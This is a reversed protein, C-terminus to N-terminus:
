QSFLGHQPSPPKRFASGGGSHGLYPPTHSSPTQMGPIGQPTGVPSFAQQAPLKPLHSSFGGQSKSSNQKMALCIILTGIIVALVTLLLVFSYTLYDELDAVDPAVPSPPPRPPLTQKPPLEESPSGEPEVCVVPPESTDVIYSIHVTAEQHAINNTFIVKHDTYSEQPPSHYDTLSIRYVALSRVSSVKVASFPYATIVQPPFLFLLSWHICNVRSHLCMPIVSVLGDPCPKIGERFTSSCGENVQLAQLQSPLGSVTIETATDLPTLAFSKRSLSFAPVFPIGLKGSFIEYTQTFDFARVRLSLSLEEMPSLTEIAHPDDVPYFSCYSSGTKRDFTAETRIFKQAGLLSHSDALEAFCEFPVQQIFEENKTGGTEESCAPNPSVQVLSFRGDGNGHLFTVPIRYMGLELKRPANTFTSLKETANFRAEQVKAVTIETHTDIVDYIKHYIVARGTTLATAVGTEPQVQIIGQDGTTWWGPKDETLHTTFCVKSGLHVTALSPLIAYGVRIRVYDSIHPLATIWVKLIVNGQKAAKVIYTGNGSGPSVTVIDFRNLRHGLSIQAFDFLRGISDHLQAVFHASYGLPYAHQKSTPSAQATSVPSISLSAVPRM